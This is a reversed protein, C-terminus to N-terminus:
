AVKPRYRVLRPLRLLARPSGHVKFRRGLVPGVPNIGRAALDIWDKWSTEITVDAAPALGPVPRATTSDVLLHWPLADTFRWEISIPRPGARTPDVSEAVTDFFLKQVEPTIELRQDPEGLVGAATLLIVRRAIEM